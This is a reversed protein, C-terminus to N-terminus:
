SRRRRGGSSRRNRNPMPRQRDRRSTWFEHIGAVCAPIIDPVEALFDEEDVADDPGADFEADGNLLLIPMMMIGARHHTILPEWEKPRLAVADLFGAAWDSAIVEGDPGEWFIPEFTNPDDNFCTLIENYRGMIAGIVTRMEDESAFEPEEGDWIVPLWESPLILEPGVVIGTLFGDLDSLGMSNEPAHESLLYDDLADLDIPDPLRPKDSM